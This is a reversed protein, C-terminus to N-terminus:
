EGEAPQKRSIQQLGLGDIDIAILQAKRSHISLFQLVEIPIHIEFLVTVAHTAILRHKIHFGIKEGTRTIHGNGTRFPHRHGAIHKFVVPFLLHGTHQPIDHEAIPIHCQTGRRHLVIGLGSGTIVKFTTMNYITVDVQAAAGARVIGYVLGQIEAPIYLESMRIVGHAAIRQLVIGLCSGRTEESWRGDGALVIGNVALTAPIVGGGAQRTKPSACADNGFFVGQRSICEGEIAVRTQAPRAAIDQQMVAHLIKGNQTFVSPVVPVVFPGADEAIRNCVAAVRAVIAKEQLGIGEHIYLIGQGSFAEQGHVM